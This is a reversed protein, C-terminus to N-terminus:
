PQAPRWTPDGAFVADAVRRIGSGDARTVFLAAEEEGRIAREHAVFAIEQGDPSWALPGHVVNDFVLPRDDVWVRGGRVYALRRADPAWAFYETVDERVVRREGALSVVELHGTGDFLDLV